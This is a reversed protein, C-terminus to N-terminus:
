KRLFVVLIKRLWLNIKKKLFRINIHILNASFSLSSKIINNLKHFFYAFRLKMFYRWSGYNRFSNPPTNHCINPQQVKCLWKSTALFIIVPWVDYLIDHFNQVFKPLDDFKDSFKLCIFFYFLFYFLPM